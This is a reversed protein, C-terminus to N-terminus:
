NWSMGCDQRAFDAQFGPQSAGDFQIKRQHGGRHVGDGFRPQRNRQRLFPADADEVLVHRGFRLRGLHGLDLAELAPHDLVRDRNWGAHRDTFHEMQLTRVLDGSQGDDFALAHDADDGVAIQAELGIEILRHAVDHGRAIAQHRHFLARRELFGHPEHVLVAELAHQHDVAIEVQAAQDRDLVNQLGRLMRVCAFVLEASETDAGRDAHALARILAGPGERSVRWFFEYDECTWAFTEDLGGVRQLHERRMMAVPPHVLNGMFMASFIEGWRCTADAVDAPADPMVERLAAANVLHDECRLNRYVDYMTSLHRERVVRGSPDVATMDTWVLSLEPVRRMLAVQAAVKWPMWQDDSDQLAIFEGRAAKLGSNRAAALGANAQRIYRVRDGYRAVLAETGDTSGDDVVIVELPRYTQALVSDLTAGLIYARNYTPICVSVLGPVGPGQCVAPIRAPTGLLRTRDATTM